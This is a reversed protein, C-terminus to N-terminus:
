DLLHLPFLGPYLPLRLALAFLGYVFLFVGLAVGAVIPWKQEGRIRLFLVLFIPLAWLFGILVVLAFLGLLWGIIRLERSRWLREQEATAPGAAQLSESSTGRWIKGTRRGHIEIGLVIISLVLTPIGFVLPLLQAALTFDFADVVAYALVAVLIASLVIRESLM